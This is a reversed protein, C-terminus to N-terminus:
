MTASHRRNWYQKGSWLTIFYSMMKVNLFFFLSPGCVIIPYALKLNRGLFLTMQYSSSTKGNRICCMSKSYYGWRKWCVAPGSGWLKWWPMLFNSKEGLHQALIIFSGVKHPITSISIEQEILQDQQLKITSSKHRINIYAVWFQM